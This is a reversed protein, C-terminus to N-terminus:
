TMVKLLAEYVYKTPIM